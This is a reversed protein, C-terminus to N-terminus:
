LITEDMPYPYTHFYSITVSSYKKCGRGNEQTNMGKTKDAMNYNCGIFDLELLIANYSQNLNVFPIPGL